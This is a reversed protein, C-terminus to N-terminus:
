YYAYKINLKLSEFKTSAGFLHFTALGDRGQVAVQNAGDWFTFDLLSVPQGSYGMGLTIEREQESLNLDEALVFTTSMVIRNIRIPLETTYNVADFVVNQDPLSNLLVIAFYNLKLAFALNGDQEQKLAKTAMEAILRKRENFINEVETKKLYCFVEIEGTPLPKKITNVNKLTATSHTRLISEVDEQLGEASEKVKLEFSSAVRVAIQGTLETLAKDRAENVDQSVGSGYYFEGSNIIANKNFQQGFVSSTLILLGLISRKM